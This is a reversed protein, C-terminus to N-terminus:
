GSPANQPSWDIPSSREFRVGFGIRPATLLAVHHHSPCTNPMSRASIMAVTDNTRMATATKVMHNHPPICSLHLNLPHLAPTVAPSCRSSSGQTSRLHRASRPLRRRGSARLASVRRLAPSRAASLGGCHRNSKTPAKVVGAGRECNWSPSCPSGRVPMASGVARRQCRAPPPRRATGLLGVAVRGPAPPRDKAALLERPHFGVAAASPQLPRLGLRAALRDVDVLERALDIPLDVQHLVHDAALRPGGRSWRGTDGM